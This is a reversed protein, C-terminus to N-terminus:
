VLVPCIQGLRAVPGHLGERIGKVINCCKCLTLLSVLLCVSCSFFTGRKEDERMPHTGPVEIGEIELSSLLPSGGLPPHALNIACIIRFWQDLKQLSLPLKTFQFWFYTMRHQTGLYDPHIGTVLGFGFCQVQIREM